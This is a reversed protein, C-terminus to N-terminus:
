NIQQLTLSATWQYGRKERLRDIASGKKKKKKRRKKRKTQLAMM